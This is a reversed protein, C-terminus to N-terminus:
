LRWGIDKRINLPLSELRRLANQREIRALIRGVFTNRFNLTM